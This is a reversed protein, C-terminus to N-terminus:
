AGTASLHDAHSGLWSADAATDNHCSGCAATGTWTPAPLAPYMTGGHCYITACSLSGDATGLDNGLYGFPRNAVLAGKYTGDSGEAQGFGTFEIYIAGGAHLPGGGAGTSGTGHCYDCNFAETQHKPHAGISSSGTVPSISLHAPITLPNGHCSTCGQARFGGQHPHCSLCDGLANHSQEQPTAASMNYAHNRVGSNNPEASGDYTHCVECVRTSTVHASNSDAYSSSGARTDDFTITPTIKGGTPWNDGGPADAPMEITTRVKKVNPTGNAGFVSNEHCIYCNFTGYKGGTVGWGGQAQWKTSGTVRSNHMLPNAATTTATVAPPSTHGAATLNITTVNVNGLPALGNVTVTLTSQKTAGPAINLVTASLLSPTVFDTSNSDSLSLTFNQATCLANDNNKVSITYKAVDTPIANRAGPNITLTPTNPVCVPIWPQHPGTTSGISYNGNTDKAFIAYYYNTFNTLGTDIFGEVPGVYRVTAGGIPNGVSYAVGEVPVETVPSEKRLVVVSNTPDLDPDPPNAWSLDIQTNGPTIVGWTAVDTSANDIEIVASSTDSYVKTNPSTVASVTGSIAYNAGPPPPMNIHSKPTIRVKYQTSTTTATINTTLAITPTDSVPSFTGLVTNGANTITITQIASYANPAGGGGTLSLTVASVTDTGTSTQVTFYDLDNIPDGPKLFLNGPNTGNGITTTPGTPTYPGAIAGTSSYNGYADKSYIKYYYGVGNTVTTDLYTALPGAYVVTSAGAVGGTVYTAGETPIDAIVGTRRLVVVSSFDTVPNTWTLTVQNNGAAGSFGSPNAPSLNDVTVTASATDSGAKFNTCTYATLTGTTAYSAGPIVPMALHAKPTIRVKFQTLTTTVPLSLGTFNLTTSTPNALTGYVVTGADNTIEVSALNAFASAPALTVTAATVTDTGASAQLTFADLMTAAGDPGVTVSAPDTGNGLTTTTVESSGMAFYLIRRATTDARTTWNLTFGDLDFTSFDAVASNTATSQALRLVKTADNNMNSDNPNFGTQHAWVSGRATASSAAGFAFSAGPNATNVTNDTANSNTSALLLGTPEFGVGTYATTFPPTGATPQAFTGVKYVGGKLALWSVNTAGGAVSANMTFGDANMSVYTAAVDIANGRMINLARSASFVSGHTAATQADRMGWGISGQSPSAGGVMFGSNLGPRRSAPNTNIATSRNSALLLVADPQFGVGTVSSNGTAAFMSTTGVNANTIDSGGIAVYHIIDASGATTITWNMTFGDADFSQVVARSEIATINATIALSIIAANNAHYDNADSPTTVADSVQVVTAAQTIAAGNFAAFGQGSSINAAFTGNSTTQKTWYFIIATPQFGVGTVATTGTTTRKTFTGQKVQLAAAAEGVTLLGALAFTCLLLAIMSSRGISGAFIVGCHDIRKKMEMIEGRLINM